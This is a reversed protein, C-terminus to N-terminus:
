ALHSTIMQSVEHVTPSDMVGPERVRGAMLRPWGIWVDRIEIPSAFGWEARTLCLLARVPVESGWPTSSLAERVIQVQSSLDDVSTTCNRRGVHLEQPGLDRIPGQRKVHVLGRYGKTDIVFVGATSIAICKICSRSGPIRRDNLVIVGEHGILQLRARARRDGDARKVWRLSPTPAVSRGVVAPGGASALGIVPEESGAGPGQDTPATEDPAHDAPGPPASDHTTTDSGAAPEVPSDPSRALDPTDAM